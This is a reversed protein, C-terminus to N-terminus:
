QYCVGLRRSDAVLPPTVHIDSEHFPLLEDTAGNAPYEGAAPVFSDVGHIDQWSAWIRDTNAHVLFFLPDNAAASGLQSGAVYRQVAGHLTTGFPPPSLVGTAPCENSNSYVSTADSAPEGEIHNRFSLARDSAFNWPAVDYYSVQLAAEIDAPKPLTALDGFGRRVANEPATAEPAAIRVPFADGRFPGRTLVGGLAPDGDGGMFRDDFIASTDPDTWDWYPVSLPEESVADLAEDFLVLLLRHWPLFMPGGRGLMLPTTANPNCRQLETSWAVFQDYWSLTSDYPSATQKLRLVAAVFADREQASLLAANKRTYSCAPRPGAAYAAAMAAGAPRSDVPASPDAMRVRFVTSPPYRPDGAGAAGASAGPSIAAAPLTTAPNPAEGCGAAWLSLLLLRPLRRVPLTPYGAHM